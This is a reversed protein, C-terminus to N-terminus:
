SKAAVARLVRDHLRQRCTRYGAWPDRRRARSRTVADLVTPPRALRALQDWGLPWSVPAGERARPSYAAVSTNTRNNRLYDILVLKERGARAYRVTFRHPASGAVIEALGRAFALCEDWGREALLPVVVHLGRGGTTKVWSALGLATLADRVVRAAAIVKHWGVQAGPDLDFVVRDPREVDGARTNWTHVEVVGMQALAVLGAQDDVVLYEGIKTKERIKV